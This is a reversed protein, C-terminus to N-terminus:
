QLITCNSEDTGDSCDKVNDCMFSKPFCKGNDCTFQNSKCTVPKCNMEDTGNDCDSIGNCKWKASICKGNGCVFEDSSCTCNFEDTGDGCDDSGDCKWQVPILVGNACILRDSSKSESNNCTKGDSLLEMGEPCHCTHTKPRPALLCIHSCGGNNSGCPNIGKPQKQQHYIRLRFPYHYSDLLVTKNKGTFKDVMYINEKEVYNSVYLMEQFVDVAFPFGADKSLIVRRQSGDLNASELKKLNQDCWFIKKITHDMTLGFPWKLNTTVIAQRTKPDGNMGCREIKPSEGWDTWFMYGTSPYVTIAAPKERITLKILTLRNNGDLDVVSITKNFGNDGFDTWYLKRNVWDVSLGEALYISENVLTRQISPNKLSASKIAKTSQDAWYLTSTLYDYDIVIANGTSVKVLVSFRKSDLSVKRINQGFAIIIFPKIGIPSPPPDIGNKCFPNYEGLTLNVLESFWDLSSFHCRTELINKVCDKTLKYERCLNPDGRNTTWMSLLRNSCGNIKDSYQKETLNCPLTLNGGM